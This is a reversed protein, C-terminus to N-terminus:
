KVQEETLTHTRVGTPVKFVKLPAGVHERGRKTYFYSHLKCGTRTIKYFVIIKASKIAKVASQTPFQRWLIM